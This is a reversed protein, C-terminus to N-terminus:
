RKALSSPTSSSIQNRSTNGAAVTWRAFALECRRATISTARPLSRSGARSWWRAIGRHFFFPFSPRGPSRSQLRSYVVWRRSREVGHVGPRDSSAVPTSDEASAVRRSNRTRSSEGHTRPFVKPGGASTRDSRCARIPTRKGVAAPRTWVAGAQSGSPWAPGPSAPWPCITVTMPDRSGSPLSRGARAARSLAEHPVPPVILSPRM